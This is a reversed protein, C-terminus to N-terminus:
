LYENNIMIPSCTIRDAAVHHKIYIDSLGKKNITFRGMKKNKDLKLTNMTIIHPELNNQFLVDKFQSM